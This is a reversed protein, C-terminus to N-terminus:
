QKGRFLQCYETEQGNVLCMMDEANGGATVFNFAPKGDHALYDPVSSHIINGKSDAVNIETINMERALSQLSATDGSYGDDLIERVAICQRVLRENVCDIIESEVNEFASDILAYADRESLRDHLFWSFAMSLAFAAVVSIVLKLNLSHWSNKGSRAYPRHSEPKM